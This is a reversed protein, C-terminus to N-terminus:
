GRVMEQALPSIIGIIELAVKTRDFGDPDVRTDAYEDLLKEIKERAAHRIRKRCNGQDICRCVERGNDDHFTVRYTPTSPHGCRECLLSTKLETTM